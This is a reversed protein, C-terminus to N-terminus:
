GQAGILGGTRAMWRGKGAIGRFELRERRRGQAGKALNGGVEKAEGVGFQARSNVERQTAESREVPDFPYLEQRKPVFDPVNGM